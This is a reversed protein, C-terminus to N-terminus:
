LPFNLLLFDEIAHPLFSAAKEPNKLWGFKGRGGRIQYSHLPYDIGWEGCFSKHKELIEDVDEEKVLVGGLGFCDMGDDRVIQHNPHDPNRSGTDDFYLIYKKAM